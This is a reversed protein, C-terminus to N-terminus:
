MGLGGIEQELGDDDHEDAALPPPAEAADRRRVEILGNSARAEYAVQPMTAPGHVVSGDRLDFVSQHWPCEVCHGRVAGEDLPGGAHACTAGIAYLGTAARHVMVADDGISVRRSEGVALAGEDLVAHWGGAHSPPRAHSVGVAHRYTLDGGIWASGGAVGLGGLSLAVGLGRRGGRRAALSALFLGLAASNLLAHLAIQPTAAQDAASYDAAGAMAAPVAAIVGTALLADAAWAAEPPGGALAILDFLAATSWSGIPIEVLLAHLPHGLWTGHLLDALRRTPEGGDVVAQHLAGSAGSAAEAFRPAAGLLRDLAHGLHSDAGTASKSVRM